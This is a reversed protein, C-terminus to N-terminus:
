AKVMWNRKKVNNKKNYFKWWWLDVLEIVSNYIAETTNFQEFFRLNERLDYCLSRTLCTLVDSVYDVNQCKLKKRFYLTDHKRLINGKQLKRILYFFHTQVTEEEKFINEWKSPICLDEAIKKKVGRKMKKNKKKRLEKGSKKRLQLETDYISPNHLKICEVVSIM